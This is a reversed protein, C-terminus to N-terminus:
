AVILKVLDMKKSTKFQRILEKIRISDGELVFIELCKNNKLHSHIQTTTIDEFNHKIKSVISEVDHGHVLLLISNIKGTLSEMEKNESFLIRVGARIVESRSSFGQEKQIKDIEKLITDNLSLSIIPM